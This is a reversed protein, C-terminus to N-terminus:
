SIMVTLTHFSWIRRQLCRLIMYISGILNKSSPSCFIQMQLLMVCTIFFTLTLLNIVVYIGLIGFLVKGFPSKRLAKEDIGAQELEPFVVKDSGTVRGITSYSSNKKDVIKHIIDEVDSERLKAFKTHFSKITPNLIARGYKFNKYCLLSSFSDVYNM